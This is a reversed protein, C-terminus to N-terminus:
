DNLELHKMWEELEKYEENTLNDITEGSYKREPVSETLVSPVAIGIQFTRSPDKICVGVHMKHINYADDSDTNKNM